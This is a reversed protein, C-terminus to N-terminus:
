KIDWEHLDFRLANDMDKARPSEQLELLLAEAQTRSYFIGRITGAPNTEEEYTYVEHVVYIKGSLLQRVREALKAAVMREAGNLDTVVERLALEQRATVEFARVLSGDPQEKGGREWVHTRQIINNIFHTTM